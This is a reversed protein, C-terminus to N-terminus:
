AMSLNFFQTIFILIVVKILLIAPYDEGEDDDSFIVKAWAAFSEYQLILLWLCVWIIIPNEKGIGGGRFIIKEFEFLVQAETEILAKRVMADLTIVMLTSGWEHKPKDIHEKILASTRYLEVLSKM